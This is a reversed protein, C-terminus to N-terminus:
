GELGSERVGAQLDVRRGLLRLLKLRAHLRLLLAQPREARHHVCIQLLVPAALEVQVVPLVAGLLQLGLQLVDVPGPQLVPLLEVDERLLKLVQLVPLLLDPVHGAPHLRRVGALAAVDDHLRLRRGHGEGEVRLVELVLDAVDPHVEAIQLPPDLGELAVQLGLLLGRAAVLLEGRADGREHLRQLLHRGLHHVLLQAHPLQVLLDAVQLSPGPQGSVALPIPQGRPQAPELGLDRPEPGLDLAALRRGHVASSLTAPDAERGITHAPVRAIMM